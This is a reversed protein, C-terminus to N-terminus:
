QQTPNRSLQALVYTTKGEEITFDQTDSFTWNGDASTINISLRHNGIPLNTTLDHTDNQIQEDNITIRYTGDIQDTTFYLTGLQENECSNLFWSTLIALSLMIQKM